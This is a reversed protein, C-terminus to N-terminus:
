AFGEEARREFGNRWWSFMASLIAPDLSKNRDEGKLHLENTNLKEM